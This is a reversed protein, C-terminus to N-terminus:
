RIASIPSEQQIVIVQPFMLPLIAALSADITDTQVFDELEMTIKLFEIM